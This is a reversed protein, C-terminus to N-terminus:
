FNANFFIRSLTLFIFIRNYYLCFFLFYLLAFLCLFSLVARGAANDSSTGIPWPVESPHHLWCPHPLRLRQRHARRFSGVPDQYRSLLWCNAGAKRWRRSSDQFVPNMVEQFGISRRRYNGQFRRNGFYVPLGFLVLCNQSIHISFERWLGALYEIETKPLFQFIPLNSRFQADAFHCNILM